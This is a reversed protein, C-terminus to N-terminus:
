AAKTKAEKAIKKALKKARKKRAKTLARGFVKADQATAFVERCNDVWM